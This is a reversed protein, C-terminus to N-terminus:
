FEMSAKPNESTEFLHNQINDYCDKKGEVEISNRRRERVGGSVVLENEM